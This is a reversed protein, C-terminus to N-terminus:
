WADRDLHSGTDRRLRRWLFGVDLWNAMVQYPGTPWDQHSQRTKSQAALEVEGQPLWHLASALGLVLAASTLVISITKTQGAAM